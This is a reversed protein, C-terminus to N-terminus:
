VEAQASQDASASEWEKRRVLGRDVWAPWSLDPALNDAMEWTYLGMAADWVVEVGESLGSLDGPEESLDGDEAAALVGRLETDFYASDYFYALKALEERMDEKEPKRYSPFCHVSIQITLHVLALTCIFLSPGQYVELELCFPDLWPHVEVSHAYARPDPPTLGNLYREIALQNIMRDFDRKRMLCCWERAENPFAVKWPSDPFVPWPDGADLYGPFTDRAAFDWTAQTGDMRCRVDFHTDGNAKVVDSRARADARMLEYRMRM